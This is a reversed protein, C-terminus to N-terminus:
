AALRYGVRPVTQILDPASPDSEVKKRLRGIHVDLTRSVIQEDYGWVSRLLEERPILSGANLALERLLDFERPTLAVRQGRVRVEHRDCDVVVDGLDIVGASCIHYENLRRLLARVRAILEFPSLPRSLYDDAGAQLLEVARSPGESGGLAILGALGTARLAACVDPADLEALALEIVAVDAKAKANSCALRDTTEVAVRRETLGLATRDRLQSPRMILLVAQRMKYVGRETVAEPARPLHSAEM